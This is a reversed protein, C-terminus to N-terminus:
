NDAHPIFGPDLTGDANLQAIYNRTQGGLRTFWGGAVIKGDSQLALAFVSWNANPDFSADLTGDANLQGIHNRPQGGLTTFWGGVVLKGRSQVALAHVANNAKPNFGDDPSQAHAPRAPLGLPLTLALLLAVVLVRGLAIRKSGVLPERPDWRVLLTHFVHKANM